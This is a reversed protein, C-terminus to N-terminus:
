RFEVWDTLDGNPAIEGHARVQLWGMALRGNTKRVPYWAFWRSWDYPVCRSWPFIGQTM